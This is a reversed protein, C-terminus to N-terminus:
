GNNATKPETKDDQQNKRFQTLAVHALEILARRKNSSLDSKHEQIKKLETVVFAYNLKGERWLSMLPNSKMGISNQFVFCTAEILQQLQQEPTKPVPYTPQFEAEM